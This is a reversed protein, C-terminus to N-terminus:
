NLQFSVLRSFYLSCFDVVRMEQYEKNRLLNSSNLHESQIDEQNQTIKHLLKVSIPGRPPLISLEGITVKQFHFFSVGFLKKKKKHM